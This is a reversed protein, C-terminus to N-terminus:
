EAFHSTLHKSPIRGKNLMNNRERARIEQLTPAFTQRKEIVAPASTPAPKVVEKELPPHVIKAHEVVYNITIDSGNRLLHVTVTDKTQMSMIKKYIAVRNKTTTTPIDNISLIIDGTQLGLEPALSNETVSGVRLGFSEGQKYVTTLDLLDILHALSAVRQVFVQANIAFTHESIQQSVNKWGIMLSYEPDFEADKKRLYLVEQQGNPRLFMVKNNFIRILQADEIMDGVKFTSERKTKTSAVIARNKSDDNYFFVIGKLTIALPELFTPKPEEPITIPLPVPPAPLPSLEGEKPQSRTASKYTDFLDYQYIKDINIELSKEELPKVAAANPQLSIGEPVAQRSFIVFLLVGLCIIFLISNLIWLPHRM